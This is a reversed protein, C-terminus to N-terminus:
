DNLLRVELELDIGKSEKVRKRCENILGTVDKFSANGTNVIFNAHRTSVHADGRRLGKCKCDDLLKGAAYGEPNKFICGASKYEYPQNGRIGWFFSQREKIRDISGKKVCLGCSVIIRGSDTLSSSRYRWEIEDKAWRCLMGKTDVTEVWEVNDSISFGKGGANGALAGGVTGPIGVLHELGEASLSFTRAIVDRMSTGAKVELTFSDGANKINIGKFRRTSLFLGNVIGDRILLNSGGGIIKLKLGESNELSKINKIDEIEEAEIYFEANGGIGMTTCPALPFNREIKASRINKCLAESWNM